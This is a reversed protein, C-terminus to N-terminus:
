SPPREPIKRKMARFLVTRAWASFTMGAEAAGQRLLEEEEESVAVSLSQRRRQKRKLVRYKKVVEHKSEVETTDDVPSPANLDGTEVRNQTLSDEEVTPQLSPNQAQQPAPKQVDAISEGRASFDHTKRRQEYLKKAYREQEPTPNRIPVNWLTNKQRM